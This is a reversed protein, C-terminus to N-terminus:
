AARVGEADDSLAVPDRGRAAHLGGPREHRIGRRGSLSLHFPAEEKLLKQVDSYQPARKKPDDTAEIKTLMEDLKPNKYHM